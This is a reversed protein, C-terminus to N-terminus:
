LLQKPFMAVLVAKMPVMWPMILSSLIVTQLVFSHWLARGAFIFIGTVPLALVYTISMTTHLFIKQAALFMGIPLTIPLLVLYFPLLLTKIIMMKLLLLPVTIPTALLGIIAFLATCPLSLLTVIHYLPLALIMM